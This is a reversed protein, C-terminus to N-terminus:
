FHKREISWQDLLQPRIIDEPDWCETSSFIGTEEPGVSFM